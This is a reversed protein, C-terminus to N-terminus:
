LFEWLHHLFGELLPRLGKLNDLVGKIKSLIEEEVETATREVEM